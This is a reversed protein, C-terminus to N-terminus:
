IKSNFAIDYELVDCIELMENYTLSGRSLKGSFNSESSSTGYKNALKKVLDKMKINREILLMKVQEKVKRM